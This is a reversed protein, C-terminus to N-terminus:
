KKSIMMERLQNESTENWYKCDLEMFISSYPITTESKLVLIKFLKSASDMKSFVDQHLISSYANNPYITYLDKKFKNAGPSLNDNLVDLELDKYLIPKVHSQSDLQTKVENLVSLLAENTEIIQINESALEPFAKDVILLWNRHGLKPLETALEVKWNQKDQNVNPEKAYQKCSGLLFVTYTLYQIIGKM